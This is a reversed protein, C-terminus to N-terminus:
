QQQQWKGLQQKWKIEQFKQLKIKIYKEKNGSVNM